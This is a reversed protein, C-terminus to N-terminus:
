PSARSATARKSQLGKSTFRTFRSNLHHGAEGVVCRVQSFFSDLSAWVLFSDLHHGAEGM